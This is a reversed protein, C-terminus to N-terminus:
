NLFLFSQLVCHWPCYLLAPYAANTYCSHSFSPPL